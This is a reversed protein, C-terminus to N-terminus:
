VLTTKAPEGPKGNGPVRESWWQAAKEETWPEIDMAALRRSVEMASQPREAPKKALLDLVLRELAPPVAIGSREAIPAPTERLHKGIAQVPNTAEFVIKGSLLFYAVCGLAYLDARGDVQDDLVMEPAM